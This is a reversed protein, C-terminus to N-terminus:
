AIGLARLIPLQAQEFADAQKQLEAVNEEATELAAGDKLLKQGQSQFFQWAFQAWDSTSKKGQSRAILFLQPIKNVTIGGGTVPSALYDIEAGTRTRELIAANLRDTSQRARAITADEQVPSLDGAGILIMMAEYLTGFKLGSASLSKEVQGITRPKFDAMLDLIPKYIEERLEAEGIAGAVKLKADARNRVLVVRQKRLLEAQALGSLRRPGKIWYDRRFQQNVIYDRVSERFNADKISNLLAAQEATINIGDILDLYHASCAFSLKAPALWNEMTSFHMPHWDRNFYEHALYNRNTGKIKSLREAVQPSTGAFKPNVALLKEAFDISQDINAVMGQGSAGLVRAHESLLHRMPTFGSWGPLTNYSIYLVGGIRLKRRFFDVLAVRNKDSIWSWIGHLGIYDFDPLDTRAVFEEFADDFVRADCKSAVALEQAFAAHSPNFDTGAWATSSSAAHINISLGQGFGLECANQIEPSSLRQNLLALKARLPNLETYYGFTYELDTVYGATWDNM